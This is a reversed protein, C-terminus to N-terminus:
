SRSIGPEHPPKKEDGRVERRDPGEFEEVQEEFAEKEKRSMREDPTKEKEKKAAPATMSVEEGTM